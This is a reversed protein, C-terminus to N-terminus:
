WSLRPPVSRWKAKEWTAGLRCLRGAGKGLWARAPRKGEGQAEDSESRAEEGATVPPPSSPEAGGKTRRTFVLVVCIAAVAVACVVVTIWKKM